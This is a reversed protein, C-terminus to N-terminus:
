LQRVARCGAVHLWARRAAKIEIQERRDGGKARVTEVAKALAARDVDSLNAESTARKSITM